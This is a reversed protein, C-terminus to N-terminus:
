ILPDRWIKSHHDVLSRKRQWQASCSLVSSFLPAKGRRTTWKFCTFFTCVRYVQWRVEFLQNLLLTKCTNEEIGTTILKCPCRDFVTCQLSATPTGLFSHWLDRQISSCRWQWIANCKCLRISQQGTLHATGSDALPFPFVCLQRTTKFVLDHANWSTRLLPM